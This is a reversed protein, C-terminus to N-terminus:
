QDNSEVRGRYTAPKVRTTRSEAIVLVIITDTSLVTKILQVEPGALFRM